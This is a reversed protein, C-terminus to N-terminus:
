EGHDRRHGPGPCRHLRCQVGQLPQHQGPRRRPLLGPAAAAGAPDLRLGAPDRRHFADARGAPDFRRRHGAVGARRPRQHRLCRQRAQPHRSIRGAHAARQRHHLEINQDVRFLLTNAYTTAGPSAQSEYAVAVGWLPSAPNAKVGAFNGAVLGFSAYNQQGSGSSNCFILTDNNWNDYRTLTWQSPPTAGPSNPSALDWLEMTIQTEDCTDCRQPKAWAVALQRRNLSYGLEPDFKFLGAALHMDHFRPSRDTNGEFWSNTVLTLDPPSGPPENTFVKQWPTTATGTWQMISLTVVGVPNPTLSQYTQALVALELGGDGDFDGITMDVPQQYMAWADTSYASSNVVASGRLNLADGAGATCIGAAVRADAPLLAAPCYSYLYSRLVISQSTPQLMMALLIIDEFGDGDLDGTAVEINGPHKGCSAIGQNQWLLNCPYAFLEPPGTNTDDTTTSAVVSAQGPQAVYSVVDLRVHSVDSTPTDAEEYAVVAEDNYTAGYTADPTLVRDLDGIALAGPSDSNFSRNAIPANWQLTPVSKPANPINSGFSMEQLYWGILPPTLNYGIKSLTLAVDRRPDIIRGSATENQIRIAVKRFHFRAPPVINSCM